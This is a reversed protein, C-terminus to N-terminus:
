IGQSLGFANFGWEASQDSFTLSRENRFALNPAELSPFVMLHQLRTDATNEGKMQTIKRLTDADLVDHLNGTTILLDEYGDLDVDIFVPCWSWETAELGALQAIEAYTGDGRNLHFTNRLVEPRYEADDIP